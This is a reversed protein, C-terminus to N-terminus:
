GKTSVSAPAPVVMGAVSEVKTHNLASGTAGTASSGTNSANAPDVFALVVGALVVAATFILSHDHKM